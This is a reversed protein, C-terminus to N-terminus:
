IYAFPSVGSLAVTPNATAFPFTTIPTAPSSAFAGVIALVVTKAMPVIAEVIDDYYMGHMQYYNLDESTCAPIALKEDPLHTRLIVKDSCCFYDYSIDCILSVSSASGVCRGDAM